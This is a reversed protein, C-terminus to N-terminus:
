ESDFNQMYWPVTAMHWHRAPTTLCIKESIIQFTNCAISMDSWHLVHKLSGQYSCQTVQSIPHSEPVNGFMWQWTGFDSWLKSTGSPWLSTRGFLALIHM